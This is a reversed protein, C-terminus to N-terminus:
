DKANAFWNRCSSPLNLWDCQCSTIGIKRGSTKRELQYQSSVGNPFPGTEVLAHLASLVSGQGISSSIKCSRTRTPSTESQTTQVEEYAIEAAENLRAIKVLPSISINLETLESVHSHVAFPISQTLFVYGGRMTPSGVWQMWGCTGLHLCPFLVHNSM